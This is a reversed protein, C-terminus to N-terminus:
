RHSDFPAKGGDLGAPYSFNLNKFELDGKINDIPLTKESDAIAPIERLIECIREFSALGRQILTFIWGLAISPWILLALYYLPTNVVHGTLFQLFINRASLLNLHIMFGTM